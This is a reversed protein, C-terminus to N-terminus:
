VWTMMFSDWKLNFEKEDNFQALKFVINCSNDTQLFAPLYDDIIPPFLNNSAM